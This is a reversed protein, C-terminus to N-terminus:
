RAPDDRAVPAHHNDPEHFVFRWPQRNTALVYSFYICLTLGLTVCGATRPDRFWDKSGAYPIELLPLCTQHLEPDWICKVWRLRPKGVHFRGTFFLRRSTTIFPMRCSVGLTRSYRSQESSAEGNGLSAGPEWMSSCVTEGSLPGMM